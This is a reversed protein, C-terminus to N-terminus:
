DSVAEFMFSHCFHMSARRASLYGFIVRTAILGHSSRLSLACDSAVARSPAYGLKFNSMAMQEGATGPAASATLCAPLLPVTCTIPSPNGLSFRLYTFSPTVWLTM